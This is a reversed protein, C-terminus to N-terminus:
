NNNDSHYYRYHYVSDGERRLDINNLVVGFNKAGVNSLEQCSQRIIDRTSKSGHVVLIVGDVITSLIVPDTVHMLPPSDVLIHDFRESLTRIMDKMKRSCILEAPHSPIPGCPLVYLNPIFSEIIPPETMDEDSLYNSLGQEANLGLVKDITPKRLDCDIILVSSGLQALSVATNVVTTTKGEGALGSTVLITKPPAGSSSLLVSTRLGRYAEAIPSNYDLVFVGNLKLAASNGNVGLSTIASKNRKARSLLKKNAAPIVGLAPLQTFRNLEGVTKVTRDMYEILFVLGIGALLSVLSSALIVPLRNPGVPGKPLKARQVVRINNEQEALQVQVQTNKQLFEKYLSKATDVNQRLINYQIALQNQTTAGSKAEELARRLAQEDRVAREYDAKLKAELARLSSAIEIRLAEMQQNLDIVKPNDPGYIANLQAAEVALDSLRSKLGTARPDSFAEPLQELRGEQVQQYLSQKLMRDTEARMVQSHLEVLKDTALSDRGETSYINNDRTYNALEQEAQQVKDQLDATSRELWGSMNTFRETKTKYSREIFHNAVCNAVAAAINRDPHTYSISLVQTNPIQDVSLRNRLVNVYPELRGSEEPSRASVGKLRNNPEATSPDVVDSETQVPGKGILTSVAESITKKRLTGIFQPVKDLKLDVVVDELLPDSKIIFMKTKLISPSSLDSEDFASVSNKPDITKYSAKEIEVAASATYMDQSRYVEVTTAATVVFIIAIVLWKRKRIMRWLEGLYVQGDSEVNGYGYADYGEYSVPYATRLIAIDERHSVKELENREDTM